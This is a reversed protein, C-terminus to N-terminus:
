VLDLNDLLNRVYLITTRLKFNTINKGSMIVLNTISCLIKERTISETSSVSIM